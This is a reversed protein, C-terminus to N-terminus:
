VDLKRHTPVTEVNDIEYMVEVPRFYGIVSNIHNKIPSGAWQGVEILEGNTWTRMDGPQLMDGINLKHYLTM